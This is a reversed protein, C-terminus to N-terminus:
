WADGHATEQGPQHIGITWERQEPDRFRCRYNGWDTWAPEWVGTADAARSSAWVADVAAQDTVALYTCVGVTDGRPTPHEYGAGAEDFVIVVAHDRRLEAHAVSADEADFRMTTTFGLARELWDIAASADRYGLMAHLGVVTETM